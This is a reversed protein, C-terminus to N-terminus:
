LFPERKYSPPIVISSDSRSRIGNCFRFIMLFLMAPKKAVRTNEPIAEKKTTPM